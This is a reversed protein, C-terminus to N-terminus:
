EIDIAKLVCNYDGGLIWPSQLDLQLARFIEQGFFVTRDHKKDSGSPAYLNLLKYPGLTAVQSRCIVLPCVDTVPFAERWVIATGPKSPQTPDINVAAKFGRLLHEIQESSLRVEQLFIIDLNEAKIIAPLGALTASM